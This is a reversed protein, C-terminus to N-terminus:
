KGEKNVLYNTALATYVVADIGIMVVTSVILALVTAEPFSGGVELSNRLLLVPIFFLTPLLVIFFTLFFSRFLFKLNMGIAQFVKRNEIIIIPLVYAFLTTIFVSLLLNFYPAGGIIVTKILFLVGSESRILLARSIFLEYVKFLGMISLYALFATTAIHIYSSATKKFIKSFIVKKGSNITAIILISSAILASSLLIYIPMQMYQFLKPMILLNYPYHLYAENWLKSIVPGFFLKLPYRPAFYFIELLFIQVFGIICYPFLIERHEILTFVSSRLIMLANNKKKEKKLIKEM